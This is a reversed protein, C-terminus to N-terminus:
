HMSGAHQREVANARHAGKDRGDGSRTAKREERRDSRCRTQAREALVFSNNEGNKLAERNQSQRSQRKRKPSVAVGRRQDDARKAAGIERIM